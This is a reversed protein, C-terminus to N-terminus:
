ATRRSTVSPAPKAESLGIAPDLPRRGVSASLLEKIVRRKIAKNTLATDYWWWGDAHMALAVKIFRDAIEAFDAGKLDHSFIFRGTGIWSM